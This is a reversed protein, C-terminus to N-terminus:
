SIRVCDWKGLALAPIWRLVERFVRRLYDLKMVEAPNPLHTMPDVTTLVEDRARSQIEPYLQM